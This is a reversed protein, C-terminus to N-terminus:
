NSCLEVCTDTIEDHCAACDVSDLMPGADYVMGPAEIVQVTPEREWLARRNSRGGVEIDVLAVVCVAVTLWLAIM